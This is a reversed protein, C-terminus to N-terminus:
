LSTLLSESSEELSPPLGHLSENSPRLFLTPEHSPLHLVKIALYFIHEPAALHQPCIVPCCPQGPAWIQKCYIFSNQCRRGVWGGVWGGGEGLLCQQFTIISWSEGFCDRLCCRREPRGRNSRTPIRTTESYNFTFVWNLNSESEASQSVQSIGNFQIHSGKREKRNKIQKCHVHRGDGREVSWAHLCFKMNFWSGTSQPFPLQGRASM